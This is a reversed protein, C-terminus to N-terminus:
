AHPNRMCFRAETFDGLSDCELYKQFWCGLWRAGFSKQLSPFPKMMTIRSAGPMLPRIVIKVVHNVELHDYSLLYQDHLLETDQATRNLGLCLFRFGLRSCSSGGIRETVARLFVALGQLSPLSRVVIAGRGNESFIADSRHSEM